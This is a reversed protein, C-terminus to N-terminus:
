PSVWVGVIVAAFWVVVAVVAAVKLRRENREIEGLQRQWQAERERGTRRVYELLEHETMSVGGEDAGSAAAPLSQSVLRM